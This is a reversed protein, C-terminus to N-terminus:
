PIVTELQGPQIISFLMMTIFQDPPEVPSVTVVRALFAVLPSSKLVAFVTLFLVTQNPGFTVPVVVPIAVFVSPVPWM